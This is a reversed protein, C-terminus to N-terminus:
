PVLASQPNQLSSHLLRSHREPSLYVVPFTVSVNPLTMCREKGSAIRVKAAPTFDRKRWFDSKSSFPNCCVLTSSATISGAEVKTGHVFGVESAGEFSGLM